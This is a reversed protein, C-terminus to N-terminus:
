HAHIRTFCILRELAFGVNIKCLHGLVTEGKKLVGGTQKLLPLLTPFIFFFFM